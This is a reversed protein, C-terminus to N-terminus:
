EGEEASAPVSTLRVGEAGIELRLSGLQLDLRHLTGEREAQLVLRGSESEVSPPVNGAPTAKRLVANMADPTVSLDIKRVVVDAGGRNLLAELADTGVEIEADHIRIGDAM